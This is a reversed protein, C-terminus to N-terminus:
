RVTIRVRVTIMVRCEFVLGFGLGGDVLGLSDVSIILSSASKVRLSAARRSVLRPLAASKVGVM